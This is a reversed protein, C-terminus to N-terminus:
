VLFLVLGLAAVAAWVGRHFEYIRRASFAQFPPFAMVTDFLLLPKGIFLVSGAFAGALNGPHAAATWAAAAVALATAAVGASAAIGLAPANEARRSGAERPYVSGPLPFLRGFLLAVAASAGIGSDWARFVVPLGCAGTTARMALERVGLVSAAAALMLAAETIAPPRPAGELLLGGGMGLCALAIIGNLAWAALRQAWERSPAPTAGRMWLFHGPDATYGSRLRFMAAGRPGLAAIQDGLGVPRFGLRRFVSQSATNDGEIETLILDCGLEVLRAVGRAVLLPAHGRGRHDPDTMVWVVFGARRGGAIPIVRVIVAAALGGDADIVFGEQGAHM